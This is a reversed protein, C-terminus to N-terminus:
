DILVVPLMKALEEFVDELTESDPAVYSRGGTISAVQEMTYQDAAALFSITHITINADAADQAAEIPDRGTNWQGDSMLIITKQALSNTSPDTLLEVAKDIGASMNTGGMMIDNYKDAIAANISGLNQGLPVDVITAPTYHGSYPYWYSSLVIDSGWTVVGVDPQIQLLGVTSVFRQIAGDLAAWRSGVPNPPTIYGSPYGPTGSPYSWSYGSEDFCMSHSRDLCLIIEQVLNAAVATHKPTFNSQGLIRGFFLPVTPNPSDDTMGVTVQIASYPQENPLFDWSGDSNVETRGFLIDNDSIQIQQGAVNNRQVLAKAAAIGESTSETRTLAEMGAKASADATVRLETRVLQMYAVDVTFVLSVLFVTMMVAILVLMAGSRTAWDTHNSCSRNRIIRTPYMM